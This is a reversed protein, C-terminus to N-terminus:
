LRPHPVARALPPPPAAPPHAPPLVRATATIRANRIRLMTCAM